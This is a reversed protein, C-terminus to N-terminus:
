QRHNPNPRSGGNNGGGGSNGGGSNGGGSNGGGSNHAPPTYSPAPRSPVSYAPAPATYSRAPETRVYPAPRGVESRTVPAAPTFAPAPRTFPQAAPGNPVTAPQFNQAPYRTGNGAVPAPTPAETRTVRTAPVAPSATFGSSPSPRSQAPSYYPSSAVPNRNAPVSGGNPAGPRIITPESRGPIPSVGARNVPAFATEERHPVPAAPGPRVSPSIAALNPRYVPMVATAGGAPHATGRGPIAHAVDPSDVIHYKPIEARAHQQVPQLGPGNNIIVTNHNGVVNVGGNRAAGGPHIDNIPHSGHFITVVESRPACYRWPRPDCFRNWGLYVFNNYGLGFDCNFPARRGGWTLGIGASWGCGPPLPAWGCHDASSRWTVWAPGWHHDPVWCWGRGYALQWRGYHFPAWGWSYHSRWYWGCDSWVWYGDDCYPRWGPNIVAVTPQWCRGYEPVDVWVGYPSLTDYFTADTVETVPQVVTVQTVGAAPAPAEPQAPSATAVDNPPLTAAAPPLVPGRTAPAPSFQAAEPPPLQQQRKLLAQIASEPVGLDHLYIIQDADLKYPEKITAIYDVLVSDGLTTQALRVVEQVPEPLDPPPSPPQVPPLVAVANTDSEAKDVAVAVLSRDVADCGALFVACLAPLLLRKM